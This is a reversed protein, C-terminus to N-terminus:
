ALWAIRHQDLIASLHFPLPAAATGLNVPAKNDYFWLALQAVALRLDAPVDTAATGYGCNVTVRFAGPLGAGIDPWDGSPALYLQGFAHAIGPRPQLYNSLSHTQVAGDTDLYSVASVTRSDADERLPAVPLELVRGAPVYDFEYRRVQALLARGTYQEVFKRAAEIYLTLSASETDVDLRLHEQFADDTYLWPEVTPATVVVVRPPNRAALAHAPRLSRDDVHAM